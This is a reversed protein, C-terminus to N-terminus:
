LAMQLDSHGLLERITNIEVSKMALQSAFHHRLDHFRFAKIDAEKLIHPVGLRALIRERAGKQHDKRFDEETKKIHGM